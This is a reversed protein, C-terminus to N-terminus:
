HRCHDSKAEPPPDMFGDPGLDDEHDVFALELDLVGPLASLKKLFATLEVGPLEVSAALKGGEVPALGSIPAMGGLLGTLQAQAQPAHHLVIGAIAM